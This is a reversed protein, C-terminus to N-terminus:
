WEARVWYAQLTPPIDVEIANSRRYWALPELSTHGSPSLHVLRVSRPEAAHRAIVLRGPLESKTYIRRASHLDSGDESFIYVYGGAPGAILPKGGWSAPTLAMAAYCHDGSVHYLSYGPPQDGEKLRVRLEGRDTMVRGSARDFSLFRVTHLLMALNLFVQGAPKLTADDHTQAGLRDDNSEVRIAPYHEYSDQWLCMQRTWSWPAFGCLGNKIAMLICERMDEAQELESPLDEGHRMWVEQLMAPMASQNVRNRFSSLPGHLALYDVATGLKEGTGGGVTVFRQVGTRKLTERQAQTWRKLADLPVNPENWLDWSIGPVDKYRLNIRRLFEQEVAVKEPCDVSDPLSLWGRPDGMEEPVLTFLDGGYVIGNKQCLYIIADWVRWTREDPMPSEVEQLSAFFPFLRGHKFLLYDKFWKLHHYHPRLYNVGCGRMQRLDVALRKVNPRYWMIAGRTSEYYNTGCFFSESRGVRFYQGQIDVRPGKQVVADKWVVFGNEGSSVTQGHRRVRVLVEYEDAEFRQPMWRWEKTARQRAPLRLSEAHSDVTKGDGRIELVVEVETEEPEFSTLCAKVVVPEHQRFCAYNTEVSEVTVRNTLLNLLDNMLTSFNSFNPSLPHLEAQQALHIRRSGDEFDQILLANTALVQGFKDTGWMLPIVQRAPYREPFVNGHSPKPVPAQSSNNAVIGLPCGAVGIKSPLGPLYEENVRTVTPQYPHFYYKYGLPAVWRVYVNNLSLDGPESLGKLAPKGEDSVPQGFPVGGTTLVAGGRELFQAIVSGSFLPFFDMPYVEGYPFVLIDMRSKFLISYSRFQNKDLFVIRINEKKGWIQEFHEPRLSRPVEHGAFLPDSLVGVVTRKEGALDRALACLNEGGAKESKALEAPSGYALRGALAAGPVFGAVAKLFSRRRM